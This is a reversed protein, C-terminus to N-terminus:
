EKVTARCQIYFENFKNDIHSPNTPPNSYFQEVMYNSVCQKIEELQAESYDNKNVIKETRNRTYQAIRSKDSCTKYNSPDINFNSWSTEFGEKGVLDKRTQWFTLAVCSPDYFNSLTYNSRSYEYAKKVEEQQEYPLDKTQELILQMGTANGSSNSEQNNYKTPSSVSMHSSWASNNATFGLDIPSVIIGKPFVLQNHVVNNGYTSEPFDIVKECNNNSLNVRYIAATGTTSGFYFVNLKPFSISTEHLAIVGSVRQSKETRHDYYWTGIEDLGGAEKTYLFINEDIWEGNADTPLKLTKSSGDTLNILKHEKEATQIHMWRNGPLAVFDSELKSLSQSSHSFLIDTRRNELDIRFVLGQRTNVSSFVKDNLWFIEVKSNRGEHPRKPNLLSEVKNEIEVSNSVYFFENEEADYCYLMEIDPNCIMSGSPNTFSNHYDDGISFVGHSEMEAIDGTMLDVKVIPQQESFNGYIFFANKYWYLSQKNQFLGISTVQADNKFVGNPWDYEARWLDGNKFYVVRRLDKSLMKSGDRHARAPHGVKDEPKKGVAPTSVFQGNKTYLSGSKGFGFYNEPIGSPSTNHYYEPAGLVEVFIEGTVNAKQGRPGLGFIWNAQAIKNEAVNWLDNKIVLFTDSYTPSQNNLHIIPISTNLNAATNDSKSMNQQTNQVEQFNDKRSSLKDNQPEETEIKKQSKKQKDGDLIRDLNSDIIEDTAKEVKQKIKKLLQANTNLCLLFLFAILLLVSKKM